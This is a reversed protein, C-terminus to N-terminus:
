QSRGRRIEKLILNTHESALRAMEYFTAERNVQLFTMRAANGSSTSACVQCIPALLWKKEEQDWTTEVVLGDGEDWGCVYCSPGNEPDLTVRDGRSYTPSDPEAM